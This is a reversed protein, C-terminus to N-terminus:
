AGGPFVTRAAVLFGNASEPDAHPDLPGDRNENLPLFEVLTYGAEVLLSTLERPTFCHLYLDLVGRYKEQIHDGPELGRMEGRWEDLRGLLGARRHRLENHVHLILIGGPKLRNRLGALFTRRNDGGEVLGLTSFMMLAADFRQGEPLPPNLFDGMVLRARIENGADAARSFPINRRKLTQEAKSLMHPNLDVGTALCGNEACLAVHRGTGCGLDLVSHGFAPDRPLRLHKAVFRRDFRFLPTAGFYEDYTEALERSNVYLEVTPHLAPSV